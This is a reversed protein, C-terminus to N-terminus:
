EADSAGGDAAGAPHGEAKRPGGDKPTRSRILPETLLLLLALALPWQFQENYEEFKETGFSSQEMQRLAAPLSGLTSETRGIRFYGETALTQLTQEELRTRVRSGGRRTRKYGTQQGDDSYLPIPGGEPTGVGAAFVAIGQENARRTISEVGGTHDEGDSIFLLAQAPARMNQTGRANAEFAAEAARWASRFRTGPTGILDPEAVDLYQRLAGYDTTLPCQLFADGAFLILGVRDGELRPLLDKIERKARRLRSPAIDEAHMSKSVDLAILLDVGRREVQRPKTGYRPGALAAGLLLVASVVLAAKWRRRKASATPTLRGILAGHGLADRAQRRRRMAYWFLGAALPVALLAWFYAPHLWSM